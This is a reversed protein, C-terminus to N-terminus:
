VLECVCHPAWPVVRRPPASQPASGWGAGGSKGAASAAAWQETGRTEARRAPPANHGNSMQFQQRNETWYGRRRVARRGASRGGHQLSAEQSSKGLSAANRVSRLPSCRKRKQRPSTCKIASAANAHPRRRQHQRSPQKIHQLQRRKADVIALFACDANSRLFRYGLGGSALSLGTLGLAHDPVLARGTMRRPISLLAEDYKRM